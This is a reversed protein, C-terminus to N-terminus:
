TVAAEIELAIINFPLIDIQIRLVFLFATFADEYM